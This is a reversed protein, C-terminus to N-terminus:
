ISCKTSCVVTFFVIFKVEISMLVKWARSENLTRFFRIKQLEEVQNHELCWYLDLQRLTFLLAFLLLKCNILLTAFLFLFDFGTLPWLPEHPLQTSFNNFFLLSFPSFLPLLLYCFATFRLTFCFLFFITNLNLNKNFMFFYVM